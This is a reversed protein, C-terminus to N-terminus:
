RAIADRLVECMQEPSYPKEVFGAINDIPIRSAVDTVCFGSTIVIPLSPSVEKLKEFLEYGDMVPMGIDTIVLDIRDLNRQYIELAEKGNAAEITKVGQKQLIKSTIIRVNEEDEVLLITCNQLIAKTSGLQIHPSNDTLGCDQIPLLIKFVSGQGKQSQLQLAGNHSKIIGIVSSMGLGRGYFKTTYFPEFIRQKTESDMGVGNDCVELTVYCRPSIKKGIHDFELKDLKIETTGLSVHIEGQVDGIAESANIILNMIVQSLQNADGLILPIRNSCDFIIDANKPVTSKLMMVMEDVLSVLSVKSLAFPIKGAYALMQRCLGAGREAAHEIASIYNESADPYMKALSSNGIIITLINNFDHAIGGALVGLSELKQAQQLQQELLKKEKEANRRETIDSIVIIQDLMSGDNNDFRTGTLHAWFDTGDKRIYHRDLEVSNITGNVIQMMNEIGATKESEHLLDSYRTGILESVNMAFMEAMRRNAFTIVGQPSVEIIGTEVNDFIVNLKKESVKLDIDNKAKIEQQTGQCKPVQVFDGTLGTSINLHDSFASLNRRITVSKPKCSVNNM